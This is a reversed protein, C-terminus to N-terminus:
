CFLTFKNTNPLTVSYSQLYTHKWKPLSAPLTPPYKRVGRPHWAVHLYNQGLYDSLPALSDSSISKRSASEFHLNRKM